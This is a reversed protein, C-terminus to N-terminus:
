NSKKGFWNFYIFNYDFTGKIPKPFIGIKICFHVLGFLFVFYFLFLFCVFYIFNLM